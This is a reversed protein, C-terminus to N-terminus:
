QFEPGQICRARVHGGRLRAGRGRLEQDRCHRGIRRLVSHGQAERQDGARGAGKVGCSFGRGGRGREAARRVTHALTAPSPVLMLQSSYSLCPAARSWVSESGVQSTCQRLLEDIRDDRQKAERAARRESLYDPAGQEHEPAAEGEEEAGDGGHLLLRDLHGFQALQLDLARDREEAEPDWYPGLQQQLEEWSPAADSSDLLLQQRRQQETQPAADKRRRPPRQQGERRGTEPAAQGSSTARPTAGARRGATVFTPDQSEDDAASPPVPASRRAADQLQRDLMEIQALGRQIKVDQTDSFVGTYRGGYEKDAAANIGDLLLYQSWPAQGGSDGVQLDERTMSNVIAGFNNPVIILKNGDSDMRNSMDDVYANLEERLAHSERQNNQASYLAQRADEMYADLFEGESDPEDSNEKDDEYVYLDKDDM